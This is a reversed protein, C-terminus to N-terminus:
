LRMMHNLKTTFTINLVVEDPLIFKKGNGKVIINM